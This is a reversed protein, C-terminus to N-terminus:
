SPCTALGLKPCVCDTHGGEGELDSLVEGLFPAAKVTWINRFFARCIGLGAGCVEGSARGLEGQSIAENRLM